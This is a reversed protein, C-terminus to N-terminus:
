LIKTIVQYPCHDIENSEIHVGNNILDDIASTPLWVQGNGSKSIFGVAGQEIIIQDIAFYENSGNWGDYQSITKGILEELNKM